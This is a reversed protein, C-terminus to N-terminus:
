RRDNARILFAKSCPASNMKPLQYKLESDAPQDFDVWLTGQEPPRKLLEPIDEPTHARVKKAAREYYYVHIM